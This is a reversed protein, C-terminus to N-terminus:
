PLFELLTVARLHLGREARRKSAPGRMLAPAKKHSRAEASRVHPRGSTPIGPDADQFLDHEHEHRPARCPLRRALDARGVRGCALLEIRGDGTRQEVIGPACREYREVETQHHYCAVAGIAVVFWSRRQQVVFSASGRLSGSVTRICTSKWSPKSGLVRRRGAPAVFIIPGARKRHRTCPRSAAHNLM